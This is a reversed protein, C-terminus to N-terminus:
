KAAPLNIVSPHADSAATKQTKCDAQQPSSQPTNTKAAPSSCGSESREGGQVSAILSGTAAPQKSQRASAVRRASRPAGNVVTMGSRPTATSTQQGVRGALQSTAGGLATGLSTGATAAVGHTLVAEAAAQAMAYGATAALFASGLIWIRM